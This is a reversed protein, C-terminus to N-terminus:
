SWWREIKEEMIKFLLKRAKVHREMGIAMAIGDTSKMYSKYKDLKLVKEKTRPHQIIYEEINNKIVDVEVKGNIIKIKEILYKDDYYEM